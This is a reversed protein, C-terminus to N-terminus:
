WMLRRNTKTSANPNTTTNTERMGAWSASDGLFEVEFENSTAANYKNFILWSSANNQMTTKYPYGKTASANYTLNVTEPNTASAAGASVINLGNKQVINSINGDNAVVHAANTFWRPDDSFTSATGNPLLSKDCTNGNPDTGFCYSEYYILASGNNGTIMTRPSHTRGYVFTTNNLATANGAVNAANGSTAATYVSSATVTLTNGNVLVPNLENNVTRNFNFMLKKSDNSENWPVTLAGNAFGLNLTENIDDQHSTMGAVAPVNIFIDVPNEWSNSDFNNTTDGASNKAEITLAIHASMNLDNSIYTYNSDNNNHLTIGAFSFYSPIFTANVDGCVWAGSASCEPLTDANNIDIQAWTKDILKLNVQGVDSFSMKVVDLAEGSIINFAYLADFNLDGALTGSGDSGDPNYLLLENELISNAGLVDYGITATTASAQAATLSFMYNQGATLLEIDEGAPTGLIFRDPRIAFSDLSCAFKTGGNYAVKFSVSQSANNHSLNLIKSSENTFTVDATASISPQADCLSQKCTANDGCSPYDPTAILSVTVDGTYASLADNTSNLSILKVNFPRAAVQTVLWTQNSSADNFDSAGGTENVVNFAGLIGSVGLSTNVDKCIGINLPSEDGFRVGLLSNEYSVKYINEISIDGSQLLKTQFSVFSKLSDSGTVNPLLQGGDVSSAGTGVRWKTTDTDTFYDVKDSSSTNPSDTQATYVSEGINKMLFTNPVYELNQTDLEMTIEVKDAIELNGDAADKKMNSIWTNVTITDGVSVSELVNGSADLFQQRYCVRPEYLETTFAVMSPYYADSSSTMNITASQQGNQIINLGSTGVDHNQIDIGSNNALSPDATFGSTSSNFANTSNIPEGDLNLKDGTYAIDGEGVFLSLTSAIDGSTPTLFGDVTIDVNKYATQSSVRKYGDFVSINKLTETSSASNDQYIVVLSWAGFYGLNSHKGETAKINAGTFWGNAQSGSLGLLESVENFTSYTYQNSSYEFVDIVNPLLEIVTGDPTTLKSASAQLDAITNDMSKALFGQTYFGAWVIKANAPIGSIEAKSSNQTTTDSDIDIYSLNLNNNSQTTAKCTSGGDKWCLVTNGIVKLNGKINRTNIPNRITFEREQSTITSCEGVGNQDLGTSDYVFTQNNRMVINGEATIGGKWGDTNNSNGDLNFNKQTYFFATIDYQGSSSTFTIDGRSFIIFDSATGNDNMTIPHGGFTAGNELFIRVQGQIEVVFKDGHHIWEGIYYDGSKFIYTVDSTSSQLSKIKMYSTGSDNYVSGPDFTVTTKANVTIDGYDADGLTTASTISLAAANSSAYFPVAFKDFEPTNVNCDVGDCSVKSTLPSPNTTTAVVSDVNLITTGSSASSLDLTQYTALASPFIGCQSIAPDTVPPACEGLVGSYTTGNKVYTAQLTGSTSFFSNMIDIFSSGKYVSVSRNQNATVGNLEFTWGGNNFMSIPGITNGNSDENCNDGKAGADVSCDDFSGFSFLSSTDFYVIVNELSDTGNLNNIPTTTQCIQGSRRSSVCNETPTGYCMDDANAIVCVTQNSGSDIGKVRSDYTVSTYADLYINNKAIIAGNVAANNSALRVDGESIVLGSVKTNGNLQIGNKSYLLFKSPDGGENMKMGLGSSSDSFSSYTFIRVTGDGTPIIQVNSGIILNQFYYDGPALYIISNYKFNVTGNVKMAIRSQRNTDIKVVGNETISLEGNIYITDAHIDFNQVKLGQAYFSDASAINISTNGTGADIGDKFKYDGNSGGINLTAGDGSMKWSGADITKADPLNVTSNDGQTLRRTQFSSANNLTLSTQSNIGGSADEIEVAYSSSKNVILQSNTDHIALSKIKFTSTNSKVNMKVTAYSRVKVDDFEKVNNETTDSTYDKDTRSNNRFSQDISPSSPSPTNLFSSFSIPAGDATCRTGQAKCSDSATDAANVVFSTSLASDPNNYIYSQGGFNIRSSSGYTNVADDICMGSGSVAFVMALGLVAPLRTFNKFAKM